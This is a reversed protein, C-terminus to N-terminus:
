LSRNCWAHWLATGLDVYSWTSGAQTHGPIDAPPIDHSHLAVAGLWCTDAPSNSRGDLNDASRALSRDPVKSPPHLSDPETHSYLNYVHFFFFLNQELQKMLAKPCIVQQQMVKVAWIPTVNQSIHLEKPM